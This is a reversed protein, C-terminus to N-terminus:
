VNDQLYIKDAEIKLAYTCLNRDAPGSLLKGSKIEFIAEHLPCEVTEDEIFGDTLLAYAHPCVNEVAFYADEIQFIGIKKGNVEVSKPDDENVESVDCIPLWDMEVMRLKTYLVANLKYFVIYSLSETM